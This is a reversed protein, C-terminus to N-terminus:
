KIPSALSAILREVNSASNRKARSEIAYFTGKECEAVFLMGPQFAGTSVRHRWDNRLIEVARLNEDSQDRIVVICYDYGLAPVRARSVISKDPVAVNSVDDICARLTTVIRLIDMARIDNLPYRADALDCILPRPFPNEILLRALVEHDAQLRLKEPSEPSEAPQALVCLLRSAISWYRDNLIGGPWFAEAGSYKWSRAAYDDLHALADAEPVEQNHHERLWWLYGLLDVATGHMQGLRELLSFPLTACCAAGMKAADELHLTAFAESCEIASLVVIHTAKSHKICFKYDRNKGSLYDHRRWEKLMRRAQNINHKIARNCAARNIERGRNATKQTTAMVIVCNNCAWVLDIAEDGKRQPHDPKFVFPASMFNDTLRRLRVEQESRMDGNM